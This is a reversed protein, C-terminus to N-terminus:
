PWGRTVVRAAYVKAGLRRPEALIKLTTGPSSGRYGAEQPWPPRLAWWTTEETRRMASGAECGDSRALTVGARKAETRTWGEEGEEM